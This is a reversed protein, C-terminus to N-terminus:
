PSSPWGKSISTPERSKKLLVPLLRVLIASDVQEKSAAVLDNYSVRGDTVGAYFRQCYTHPLDAEKIRMILALGQRETAPRNAVTKM